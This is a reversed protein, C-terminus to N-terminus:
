SDVRPCYVAEDKRYSCWLTRLHRLGGVPPDDPWQEASQRSTGSRQDARRHTERGHPPCRYRGGLAPSASCNRSGSSRRLHRQTQDIHDCLQLKDSNDALQVVINQQPPPVERPPPEIAPDKFVRRIQKFFKHVHGVQFMTPTSGDELIWSSLGEQVVEAPVYALLEPDDDESAAGVLKMVGVRLERPLRFQDFADMLTEPKGAASSMITGAAGAPPRASAKPTAHPLVPAGPPAFITERHAVSPMGEAIEASLDDPFAALSRAM